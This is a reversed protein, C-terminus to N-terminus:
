AANWQIGGRWADVEEARAGNCAGEGQKAEGDVADPTGELEPSLLFEAM